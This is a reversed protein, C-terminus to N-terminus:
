TRMEPPQTSCSTLVEGRRPVCSPCGHRRVSAGFGLFESSSPMFLSSTNHRPRPAPSIRLVAHNLAQRKAGCITKGRRRSEKGEEDKTDENSCSFRIWEERQRLMLRPKENRRLHHLLHGTPFLSFSPSSAPFRANNILSHMLSHAEVGKLIQRNSGCPRSSAPRESITSSGTNLECLCFFM